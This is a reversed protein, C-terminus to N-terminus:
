ATGPGLEPFYRAVETPTLLRGEASEFALAGVPAKLRWYAAAEARDADDLAALCDALTVVVADVVQSPTRTEVGVGALPLPAEVPRDHRVPLLLGVWQQRIDEPAEGAPVREVLFWYRPENSRVRRWGM